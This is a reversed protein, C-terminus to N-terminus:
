HRIRLAITALMSGDFDDSEGVTLAGGYIWVMVARLHPTKSQHAGDDDANPAYV